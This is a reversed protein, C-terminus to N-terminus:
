LDDSTMVAGEECPEKRVQRRWDSGEEKWSFWDEWQDSGDPLVIRAQFTGDVLVAIVEAPVWVAPADESAAVEVEVKDGELPWQWGNPPPSSHPAAVLKSREERRGGAAKARYGKVPKETPQPNDDPEDPASKKAKRPSMKKAILAEAPEAEGTAQEVEPEPASEDKVVQARAQELREIIEAERGRVVWSKTPVDWFWKPQPRLQSADVTHTAEFHVSKVVWQPPALEPLAETVLVDWWGGIFSLQVTDNVRLKAAWGADVPPLPLPRVKRVFELQQLGPMQATDDMEDVDDGDALLEEYEVRIKDPAKHDLVRAEFWAGFHEASDQLVEVSMGIPWDYALRELAEKNALAAAGKGKPAAPVAGKGKAGKATKGASGGGSAASGTSVRRRKADSAGPTGDVGGEDDNSEDDGPTMTTSAKRAAARKQGASGGADSKRGKAGKKFGREQLQEDIPAKIDLQYKPDSLVALYLTLMEDLEKLLTAEDLNAGYEYMRSIICAKEYDGALGGDARLDIEGNTDWGELEGATTLESFKSRVFNAVHELHRMAASSGLVAKLKSTGQGLCLYVASMDARFLYQMYLGAQTSELPDSVAIWPVKAWGGCGCSSRVAFAEGVNRQLGLEISEMLTMWRHGKKFAEHKKRYDYENMMKAIGDALRTIHRINNALCLKLRVRVSGNKEVLTWLSADVVRSKELARVKLMHRMKFAKELEAKEKEKRELEAELAAKQAAEEQEARRKREEREAERPAKEARRAAKVREREEREMEHVHMKAARMVLEDLYKAVTARDREDRVAQKKAAIQEAKERKEREKAADREIKEREKAVSAAKRGREKAEGAQRRLEALREPDKCAKAEHILSRLEERALREEECVPESGPARLGGPGGSGEGKKPAPAGAAHNGELGTMESPRMRDFGDPYLAVVFSEREAAAVADEGGAGSPHSAENQKLVCKQRKTNPGGFKPKDLCFVCEGCDDMAFGPASVSSPAAGGDSDKTSTSAGGSSASAAGGPVGGIGLIPLHNLLHKLRRLMARPEVYYLHTAGGAGGGNGDLHRTVLDDLDARTGVPATTPTEEDMEMPVAVSEDAVPSTTRSTKIPLEVGELAIDAFVGLSADSLIAAWNAYGHTHVGLLLAADEASTWTRIPVMGAVAATSAVPVPSPAEDPARSSAENPASPAAAAVADEDEDDLEVVNADGESDAAAAKTEAPTFVPRAFKIPLLPAVFGSSPAAEVAAHLRRLDILQATLQKAKSIIRTDYWTAASLPQTRSVEEPVEPSEEGAM